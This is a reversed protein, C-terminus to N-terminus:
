DVAKCFKANLGDARRLMARSEEVSEPDLATMDNERFMRNICTFALIFGRKYNERLKDLKGDDTFDEVSTLLPEFVKNLCKIKLEANDISNLALITPVSSYAGEAM